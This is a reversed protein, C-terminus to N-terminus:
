GAAYLREFDGAVVKEWLLHFLFSQFLLDM